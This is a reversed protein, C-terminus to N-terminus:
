IKPQSQNIVAKAKQTFQIVSSDSKLLGFVVLNNSQGKFKLSIPTKRIEINIKQNVKTDKLKYFFLNAHNNRNKRVVFVPLLIYYAKEDMPLYFMKEQDFYDIQDQKFLEETKICNMKNNFLEDVFGVKDMKSMLFQELQTKLDLNVSIRADFCYDFGILAVDTPDEINPNNEVLNEYIINLNQIVDEKKIVRDINSDFNSKPICYIQYFVSITVLEKNNITHRM